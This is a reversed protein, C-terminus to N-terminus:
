RCIRYPPSRGPPTTRFGHARAAAWFSRAKESPGVCSISYDHTRVKVGGRCIDMKGESVAMLRCGEKPLRAMIGDEQDDPWAWNWVLAEANPNGAKMGEILTRNVEAM